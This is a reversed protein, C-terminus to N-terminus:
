GSVGNDIQFQILNRFATEDVRDNKFPTVIATFTGTFM